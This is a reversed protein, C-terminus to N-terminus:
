LSAIWAILMPISRTIAADSLIIPIAIMTAEILPKM